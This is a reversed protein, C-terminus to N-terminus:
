GLRAHKKSPITFFFTSGKGPQSEVWIRGRHREVIEKCVALGIGTGEFEEKAHLRQFIGFIREFSKPDIGIGNDRVSFEWADGKREAGVHIQLPNDSRFKLANAILNQFLQALQTSDAIVIPMPDDTIVAGAETIALQLDTQVNRLVAACDTQVMPNARTQVRSLALLDSILAQMRKAGDVAFAIYQDGQADLKGKYRQEILQVFSAVMRLPEHLDHSAVYAFQALSENSRKLEAAVTKLEEEAHRRDTIDRAAAYLLQTAFDATSVWLLWKYSGDKCRYRNEFSVTDAGTTLKAAEAATRERDEPHVFHLYPEATLEERSYGLYKEWAPNLLKFFGDFGAICLMDLSMEFFPRLDLDTPLSPSSM